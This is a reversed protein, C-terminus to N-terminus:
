SGDPCNRQFHGKKGCKHYTMQDKSFIGKKDKGTAPADAQRKYGGGDAQRKYGGGSSSVQAFPM